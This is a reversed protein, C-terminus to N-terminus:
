VMGLAPGLSRNYMTRVQSATLAKNFVIASAMASGKTLFNFPSVGIDSGLYLKSSTGGDPATIGVSTAGVQRGNLYFTVQGGRRTFGHQCPTQTPVGQNVDFYLQDAGSGSESLYNITSAIGTLYQVYCANDAQTEGNASCSVMCRTSGAQAVMICLFTMDGVIQLDADTANRFVSSSGDFFFGRMGPLLDTYRETGAAVTLPRSGFTSELTSGLTWHAVPGFIEPHYNALGRTGYSM